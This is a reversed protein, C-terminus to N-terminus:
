KFRLSKHDENQMPKPLSKTGILRCAKVHVLASWVWRVCSAIIVDNHRWFSAAVDNNRWKDALFDKVDYATM